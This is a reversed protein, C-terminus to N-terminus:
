PAAAGLKQCYPIGDTSMAFRWFQPTSQTDVMVLGYGNTLTTFDSTARRVATGDVKLAPGSPPYLTIANVGFTSSATLLAGYTPDNTLTIKRYCGNDAGIQQACSALIFTPSANSVTINNIVRQVEELSRLIEQIRLDVDSAWRNAETFNSISKIVRRHPRPIPILM